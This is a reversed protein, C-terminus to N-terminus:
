CSEKTDAKTTTEIQKNADSTNPKSKMGSMCLGLACMAACPAAALLIPAIGAAVLWGWSFTATLGIAIAFIALLVFRNSLARRMITRLDQNQSQSTPEYNTM